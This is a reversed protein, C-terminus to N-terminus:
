KNKIVVWPFPNNKKFFYGSAPKYLINNNFGELDSLAHHFYWNSMEPLGLSTFYEHTRTKAAASEGPKYLYSDTIHIEGNEKLLKISTNLIAPLSSFYQISASFVIIDFQNNAFIESQIDNYIFHLNPIDNFVKAAQQLEYLHIDVGIVKSGPIAALRHSLWGNGCGVELIKLPQQKIQLYKVLRESSQRRMQWEKYYTHASSIDPLSLVEENTYHRGEKQRLNFYLEDFNAPATHAAFTTM